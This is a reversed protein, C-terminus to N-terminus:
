FRGPRHHMRGRNFDALTVDNTSTIHEIHVVLEFSLQQKFGQIEQLAAAAAPRGTLGIYPSFNKSLSVSKAKSPMRGGQRTTASPEPAFVADDEQQHRHFVGVAVQGVTGVLPRSHGVELVVFQAPDGFRAAFQEGKVQACYRKLPVELIFGSENPVAAM